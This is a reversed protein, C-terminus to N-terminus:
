LGLIKEIKIDQNNRRESKGKKWFLAFLEFSDSRTDNRKINNETTGVVVM